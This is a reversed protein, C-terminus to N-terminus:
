CDSRDRSGFSPTIGSHIMMAGTPGRDSDIGNSANAANARVRAIGRARAAAFEAFTPPFEDAAAGIPYMRTTSATDSVLKSADAVSTGPDVVELRRGQSSLGGILLRTPTGLTRPHPEAAMTSRRDTSRHASRITLMSGPIV